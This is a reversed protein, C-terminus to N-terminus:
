DESDLLRCHSILKDIWAIQWARGFKSISGNQCCYLQYWIKGYEWNLVMGIVWFELKQCRTQDLGSRLSKRACYFSESFLM